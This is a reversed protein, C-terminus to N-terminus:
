VWAIRCRMRPQREAVPDTKEVAPVLIRGARQVLGGRQCLSGNSQIIRQRHGVPYQTPGIQKLPLMFLSDRFHLPAIVRSELSAM